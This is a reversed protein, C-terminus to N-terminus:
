LPGPQLLLANRHARLQDLFDVIFSQTAHDKIWVCGLMVEVFRDPDLNISMVAKCNGYMLTRECYPM